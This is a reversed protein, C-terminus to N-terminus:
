SAHLPVDKRLLDEYTEREVVVRSAGGEALVMAPRPYRNYNSAMSYNYAGTSFVAVVDGHAIKPLQAEWILVDGSECCRGSLCVTGEPRADPSAALVAEYRAQYLATRPNEFMGGDVSAFSRVGPVDKMSGVTYLTVACPGVVSRGPELYLKPLPYGSEHCAERLADSVTRVFAEISPPQDEGRYRIGLGGGLDLDEAVFGTEERMRAAFEVMTRANLAFPELDFIQSGIHSHYGRLRIGPIELARKVARAASGELIGFGFKTDVVGTQIAKHTHTDIGPTLRLWIDARQGTQRTLDDLLELEYFNDVIIRGVGSELAYRLEQPTKNNGHLFLDAAPVGARLATYIEGGSCVDLGLGGDYAARCMAMTCLAKAAYLARGGPAFKAIAERYAGLRAKLRDGDLVHLPTSYERALDLADCGGIALHGDPTRGYEDRV